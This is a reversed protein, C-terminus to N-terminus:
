AAVFNPNGKIDCRPMLSIEPFFERVADVYKLRALLPCDESGLYKSAKNAKIMVVFCSRQKNWHYGLLGLNRLQGSQDTLRLNSWANNSRNGDLHDPSLEGPDEKTQLFWIVRHAKYNIGRFKGVRYGQSDINGWERGVYNPGHSNVRQILTLAGTNSNYSLYEGIDVPIPKHNSM